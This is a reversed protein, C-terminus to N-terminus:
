EKERSPASRLQRDDNPMGLKFRAAKTLEHAASHELFYCDDLIRRTFYAAEPTVPHMAQVTTAIVAEVTEAVVDVLGLQSARETTLEGGLLCMRRASGLGVFKALWYTGAGPLRGDSPSGLTLRAQASALRLDVSLGAHVAAAGVRGDYAAFTKAKLGSLRALTEDWRTLHRVGGAPPDDRRPPYDGAASEPSGSFHLVLNEIEGHEVDDLVAALASVLDADITAEHIRVILVRQGDCEDVFSLM